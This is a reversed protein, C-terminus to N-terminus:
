PKGYCSTTIAAESVNEREPLTPLPAPLSKSGRLLVCFRSVAGPVKVAVRANVSIVEVWGKVEVLWKAADVLERDKDWQAQEM